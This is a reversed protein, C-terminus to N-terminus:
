KRELDDNPGRENKGGVRGKEPSRLAQIDDDILAIDAEIRLLKGQLAKEYDEDSLRTVPSWKSDLWSTEPKSNTRASSWSDAM